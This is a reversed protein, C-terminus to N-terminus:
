LGAEQAARKCAAEYDVSSQVDRTYLAKLEQYRHWRNAMVNRVKRWESFSDTFPRETKPQSGTCVAGFREAMETLIRCALVLFM